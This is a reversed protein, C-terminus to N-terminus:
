FPNLLLFGDVLVNTYSYHIHKITYTKKYNAHLLEVFLAQHRRNAPDAM